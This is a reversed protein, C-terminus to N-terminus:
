AATLADLAAQWENGDWRTRTDPAVSASRWRKLTGTV